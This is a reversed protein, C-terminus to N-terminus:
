TSIVLIAPPPACVSGLQSERSLGKFFGAFPFNFVIIDFKIGELLEHNAMKTADMEHLVRCKRISLEVINSMANQYHKLLFASFFAGFVDEWM